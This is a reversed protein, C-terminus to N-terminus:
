HQWTVEGEDNRPFKPDVKEFIVESSLRQDPSDSPPFVDREIRIAARWQGDVKKLRLLETWLGNRGSFFINYRKHDGPGMEFRDLRTGTKPILSGIEIETYFDDLAQFTRPAALEFEDLDAIKAVVEYVPYDGEHVALLYTSNQPGVVGGVTTLYVFSEGGTITNLTNLSLQALEESKLRLARESRAAQGAGLLAGIASLAAGFLVLAPPSRLWRKHERSAAWFAGIASLLVGIFVM